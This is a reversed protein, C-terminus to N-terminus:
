KGSDAETGSPLVPFWEVNVKKIVQATLDDGMISEPNIGSTSLDVVLSYGSEKLASVVKDKVKKRLEKIIDSHTDSLSAPDPNGPILADYRADEQAIMNAGAFIKRMDVYAIGEAAFLSVALVVVLMGFFLKKMKEEEIPTIAMTTLVSFWGHMIAM